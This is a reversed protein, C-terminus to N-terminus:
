AKVLGGTCYETQLFCIIGIKDDNGHSRGALKRREYYDRQLDANAEYRVM